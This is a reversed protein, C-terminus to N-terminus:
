VPRAGQMLAQLNQTEAITRPDSYALRWAQQKVFSDRFQAEDYTTANSRHRIHVFNGIGSTGLVAGRDRLEAGWRTDEGVCTHQMPHAMGAARIMTTAGLIGIPAEGGNALGPDCMWVEGTPLKIFHYNKMVMGLGRGYLHQVAEEVYRSGYVDDDDMFGLPAGPDVRQAYAMGMNRVAGSQRIPSVLVVDPRFGAAACAGVARGNEVVVMRPRLTQRAYNEALNPLFEPRSFPVVIWPRM